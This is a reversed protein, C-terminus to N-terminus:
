GRFKYLPQGPEMKLTVRLGSEVRALRSDQIELCPRSGLGLIRYKTFCSVHPRHVDNGRIRVPLDAGRQHDGEVGAEVKASGLVRFKYLPQGSREGRWRPGSPNTPGVISTTTLM